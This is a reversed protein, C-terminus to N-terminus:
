RLDRGGFLANLREVKRRMEDPSPRSAEVLEEATPRTAAPMFETPEFAQPRKKADRVSNAVTAAVLGGRWDARREGDGFPELEAFAM